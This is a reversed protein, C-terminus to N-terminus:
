SQTQAVVTQQQSKSEDNANAVMMYGPVIREVNPEHEWEVAGSKPNHSGFVKAPLRPLSSGAALCASSTVILPVSVLTAADSKCSKKSFGLAWRETSLEWNKFAVVM